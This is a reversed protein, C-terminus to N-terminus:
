KINIPNVNRKTFEYVEEDMKREAIDRQRHKRQHLSAKKPYVNLHGNNAYADDVRDYPTGPVNDKAFEHVEEEM